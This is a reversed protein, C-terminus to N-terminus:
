EFASRKQPVKFSEDLLYTKNVRKLVVYIDNKHTDRGRLILQGDGVQKYQLAFKDRQSHPNKNQLVLTHRATDITYRYFHRGSSGASEYNRDKDGLYIEETNLLDPKEYTNSRISITNWQEFVVNQWRHRDTLSYPIINDNFRFESVNYFGRANPLGGTLPYQYGNQQYAAQAMYGFSGITLVVLVVKTIIAKKNNLLFLPQYINPATPKALVIVSYFRWADRYLIVLAFSILYLCYVAEGGSYALNSLFVNGLYGIAIAAGVSATKRHLLLLAALIETWGLLAVFSPVVGYSFSAVKWDTFDGYNTNLLSLSPYPQQLPFIQIFGYALLAIALRYRLLARLIYNLRNYRKNQANKDKEFFTWIVAGTIAIVLIILWDGITNLGWNLANTQANLFQPTYRALYFLDRYHLHAWDIAFLNRYYKWDLPFAQIILYIFLIRFIATEYKKWSNDAIPDPTSM